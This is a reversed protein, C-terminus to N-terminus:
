LRWALSQYAPIFVTQRGLTVDIRFEKIGPSGIEQWDTITSEISSSWLAVPGTKRVLPMGDDQPTLSAISGTTADVYYDVCPGGDVSKGIRQAGPRHTARYIGRDM